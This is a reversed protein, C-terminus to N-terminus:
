GGVPTDAEGSTLVLSAGLDARMDDVDAKRALFEEMMEPTESLKRGTPFNLRMADVHRGNVLVEYHLHPGTSAGTSGVYGVIDGQRVSRGSRIGPGYRSMHAYATQYGNAHRIRVYNGYGGYRSAREVTGHGAAYIPTGTPAAFDTGKHLRTYGSIPHRRNGFRSSLRAGNIPTKMLFKTASDGNADFYDSVEDDSPVHYYFDRALAKGDLSAFIVNGLRVPRGREDVMSEYVIEFKDGPHIERQFDVDYAFIKAFDVVQQDGAGQQLAAEYLSTTVEGAVRLPAATLRAQLRTADFRGDERATSILSTEAESRLNVAVLRAPADEEGGAELTLTASLGPRVRRPDIYDAEFIPQLARHAEAPSAGLDILLDSLTEGRGLRRSVQTLSRPEVAFDATALQALDGFAALGSPREAQGTAEAEGIGLRQTVMAGILGIGAVCTLSIVGIQIPSVKSSPKASM